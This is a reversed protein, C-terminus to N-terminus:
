INKLKRNRFGKKRLQIKVARETISLKKSLVPIPNPNHSLIKIIQLDELSSDSFNLKSQSYEQLNNEQFFNQCSNEEVIDENFSPVSIECSRKTFSRVFNRIGNISYLKAFRYCWNIFHTNSDFSEPAIKALRLMVEQKIDEIDSEQFNCCRSILYKYVIKDLIQFKQDNM